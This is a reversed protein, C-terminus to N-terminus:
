GIMIKGKPFRYYEKQKRQALAFAITLPGVRGAFMTLTIVIRGIDTLHPTLGMSLGVTGFASTSEFLIMLFDVNQETISLIMSAAIVIFLGSVTVTLSKYIMHPLIRQRFFIVDEKGKVQAWVAGLLTAFTTTKIGGGTSGPSAGIFMLIIIFFLSSHRMDGISITNSGDTRAAVSQYFSGFFKGLMSLPQLTKPNNYELAFIAVTGAVILWATTTLVVKTHLSLRRKHRRYEYLESLVIFGIGGLIVLLPIVLNVIPDEVYSTLSNFHGLIDFGANNFNSISHFLGFYLAQGLPMEFAFRAALLLAGALEIIATFILVMRALRVIGEISIQNLSERLLLREKLSIKRRILLAFFTAFTMFGLGGVQILSLIVLQGFLTFTTGTDVVVLGTVCTASTATFLADIWPLGTGSVTAAPLTLLFAGIVIIVAFGLVLIKPPDHRLNNIVKSFM